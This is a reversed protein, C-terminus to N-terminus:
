SLAKVSKLILINDPEFSIDSMDYLEIHAYSKLARLKDSTDVNYLKINGSSKADIKKLSIGVLDNDEMLTILIANLEWLVTQKGIESKLKDKIQQM